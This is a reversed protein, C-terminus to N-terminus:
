IRNFFLLYMLCALLVGLSLYVLPLPWLSAEIRVTLFLPRMLAALLAGALACVLWAPFNDGVINLM